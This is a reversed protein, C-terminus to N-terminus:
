IGHSDISIRGRLITGHKVLLASKSLSRSQVYMLLCLSLTEASIFAKRVFNGSAKIRHGTLASNGQTDPSDSLKFPEGRRASNLREIHTIM